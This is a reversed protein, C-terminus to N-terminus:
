RQIRIGNSIGFLDVVGRSITIRDFILFYMFTGVCQRCTPDVVALHCWMILNRLM